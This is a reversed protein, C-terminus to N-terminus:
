YAKSGQSANEKFQLYFDLEVIKIMGKGMIIMHHHHELKDHHLRSM